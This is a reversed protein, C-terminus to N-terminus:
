QKTTTKTKDKPRFFLSSWPLKKLRDTWRRPRKVLPHEGVLSKVKKLLTPLEHVLFFNASHGHDDYKTRRVAQGILQVNSWVHPKKAMQLRAKSCLSMHAVWANPFRYQIFRRVHRVIVEPIHSTAMVPPVEIRIDITKSGADTLVDIAFPKTDTYKELFHLRETAVLTPDHLIVRVAYQPPLIPKHFDVFLYECVAPDAIFIKDANLRERVGSEIDKLQVYFSADEWDLTPPLHRYVSVKKNTQHITVGRASLLTQIEAKLAVERAVAGLVFPERPKVFFLDPAQTRTPLLVRKVCRGFIYRTNWRM